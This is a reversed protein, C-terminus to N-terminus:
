SFSYFYPQRGNRFYTFLYGNQKVPQGLEYTVLDMQFPIILSHKFLDRESINMQAFEEGVISADEKIRTYAAKMQEENLRDNWWLKRPQFQQGVLYDYKMLSTVVDLDVNDMTQLFEILRQFLDELQHGIRSWGKNEWYTGFNQFFDFPTEFVERVLYELTNDMRHENWYKELM